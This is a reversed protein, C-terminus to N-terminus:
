HAMKDTELTHIPTHAILPTDAIRRDRRGKRPKPPEPETNHQPPTGGPAMPFFIPSHAQVMRRAGDEFRLNARPHAEGAPYVRYLPTTDPTAALVAQAAELDDEKRFTDLLIAEAQARTLREIPRHARAMTFQISTVPRTAHLLYRYTQRLSLRPGIWERLREQAHARAGHGGHIERMDMVIEAVSDKAQNMQEVLVLTEPSVGMLGTARRTLTSEGFDLTTALTVLEQAGAASDSWWYRAEAEAPAVARLRDRIGTLHRAAKRLQDDLADMGWGPTEMGRPAARLM